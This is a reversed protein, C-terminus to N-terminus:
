LTYLLGGSTAGWVEAAKDLSVTAVLQSNPSFIAVSVYGSHQLTYRLAGSTADWVKATGDKSVIAVLQGNPSFTVRRM